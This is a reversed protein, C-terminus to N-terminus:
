ILDIYQPSKLIQQRNM